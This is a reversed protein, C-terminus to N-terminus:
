PRTFAFPLALLELQKESAHKERQDALDVAVM